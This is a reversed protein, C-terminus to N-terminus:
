VLGNYPKLQSVPKMDGVVKLQCERDDAAGCLDWIIETAEVTYNLMSNEIFGPAICGELESPEYAPHILIAAAVLQPRGRADFALNKNKDKAQVLKGHSGPRIQKRLRKQPGKKVYKTKATELKCIYTRGGALAVKGCREITEYLRGLIELTGVQGYAGSRDKIFTDGRTYIMLAASGGVIQDTM